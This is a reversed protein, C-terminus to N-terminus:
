AEDENQQLWKMSDHGCRTKRFNIQIVHVCYM